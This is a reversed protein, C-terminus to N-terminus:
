RANKIVAALRDMAKELSDYSPGFSLRVYKRFRSVRGTRRKGPNVDFFEGPVTIVKQDLAARFFSLGDSISAPLGEVKAWLYFTGDPERVITLGM